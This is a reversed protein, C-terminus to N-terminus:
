SLIMADGHTQKAKIMSVVGIFNELIGNQEADVPSPTQLARAKSIIDSLKEGSLKLLREIVEPKEKAMRIIAKSDFLM